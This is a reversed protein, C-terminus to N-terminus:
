NKWVVEKIIWTKEESLHDKIWQKAGVLNWSMFYHCEEGFIAYFDRM